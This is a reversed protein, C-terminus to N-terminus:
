ANALFCGSKDDEEKKEERKRDAAEFGVLLSWRLLLCVDATGKKTLVLPCGNRQGLWWCVVIESWVWRKGAVLLLFCHGSDVLFGSREGNKRKRKKKNNQLDLLEWVSSYRWVGDEKGAVGLEPSAVRILVVGFKSSWKRRHEKTEM